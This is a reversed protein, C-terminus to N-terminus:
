KVALRAGNGIPKIGLRQRDASERALPMEGTIIRFGDHFFKGRPEVRLAAATRNENGVVNREIPLEDIVIEMPKEPVIREAERPSPNAVKVRPQNLVRRFRRFPFFISYRRVRVIRHIIRPAISLRQSFEPVESQLNSESL